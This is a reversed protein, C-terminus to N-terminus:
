QNIVNSSQIIPVAHGVTVSQVPLSGDELGYPGITTDTTQESRRYVNITTNKYNGEISKVTYLSFIHRKHIWHNRPYGQVIEFYDEGYNIEYPAGYQVQQFGGVNTITTPIRYNNVRANPTNKFTNQFHFWGDIKGSIVNYNESGPSGPSWNLSSATYVMENYFAESALIYDYLYVSTTAYMKARNSDFTMNKWSQSIPMKMSNTQPSNDIKYTYNKDWSGSKSYITYLSWKKMLYYKQSATPHTQMTMDMFVIGDNM